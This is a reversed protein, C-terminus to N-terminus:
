VSKNPLGEPMRHYYYHSFFFVIQLLDLYNEVADHSSSEVPATHSFVIISCFFYRLILYLLIESTYLYNLRVVSM